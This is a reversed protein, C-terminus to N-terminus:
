WKDKNTERTKYSFIPQYGTSWDYMWKCLPEGFTVFMLTNMCDRHTCLPKIKAVKFNINKLKVMLLCNHNTRREWSTFPSNTLYNPNGSERTMYNLPMILNLIFLM